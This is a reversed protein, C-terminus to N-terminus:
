KFLTHQLGILATIEVKEQSFRFVVLTVVTLHFPKIEYVRDDHRSNRNRGIDILRNATVIQAAKM